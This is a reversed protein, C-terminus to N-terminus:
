VPPISFTFNILKNIHYHNNSENKRRNNKKLKNLKSFFTIILRLQWCGTKRLCCPPRQSWEFFVKRDSESTHKIAGLEFLYNTSTSVNREKEHSSRDRKWVSTLQLGISKQKAGQLRKEKWHRQKPKVLVLDGKIKMVSVMTVKFVQHARGVM